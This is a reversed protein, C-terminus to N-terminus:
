IFIQYNQRNILELLLKPISYLIYKLKKEEPTSSSRNSVPSSIQNQKPEPPEIHFESSRKRINNEIKKNDMIIMKTNGQFLLHYDSLLSFTFIILNLLVRIIIIGIDKELNNMQSNYDTQLKQSYNDDTKGYSKSLEASGTMIPSNSLIVEDNSVSDRSNSYYKFILSM